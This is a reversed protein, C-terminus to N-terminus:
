GAPWRRGCSSRARAQDAQGLDDRPELDGDHDEAGPQLVVQGVLGPGLVLDVRDDLREDLGDEVPGPRDAHAALVGLVIELAEAEGVDLDDAARRHEEVAVLDVHALLGRGQAAVAFTAILTVWRTLAIPGIMALWRSLYGFRSYTAWSRSM